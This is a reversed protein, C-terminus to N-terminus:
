GDSRNLKRREDDDNEDNEDDGGVIKKVRGGFGVLPVERRIHLSGLNYAFNRDLFEAYFMFSENTSECGEKEAFFNDSAFSV